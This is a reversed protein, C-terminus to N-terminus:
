EARVLPLGTGTRCEPVFGVEAGRCERERSAHVSHLVAIQQGVARYCAPKSADPVARCFALGDAPRATVDVINKVLGVICYPAWEPPAAACYRIGRRHNGAGWSNADRGLSQFCTQQVDAPARLCQQSAATFDGGNFFLIPSTQMLYCQRRHHEKVVTCPYLPEDRDLAKFAEAGAAQGEHGGAAHDHSEEAAAEAAGEGAGHGAHADAAARTTATLHPHTANVVNEMFAGGWCAQKEFSEVLLDCADLARLLHHANVAMLGHGMGHACQFELWRREPGRYDACLANLREPTVGGSGRGDSFYAQIVGHYCGSQFDTTCRGFTESVTEPGRYAAIGIGHALEHGDTRVRGDSAAMALLAAMARDVGASDLVTVLAKELCEGRRAAGQCGQLVAAAIQAPPSAPSWASPAAAPGGDAAPAGSSPTCGAALAACLVPLLRRLTAPM